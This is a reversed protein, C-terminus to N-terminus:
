VNFISKPHEDMTVMKLANESFDVKGWTQGRYSTTM